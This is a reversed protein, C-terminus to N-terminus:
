QSSQIQRVLDLQINTLNKPVSLKIEVILNGRHPQNLEYLGQGQIRFKTGHQTGPPITLLFTRDDLGQIETEGGIIADLCNIEIQTFLDSGMPQYKSSPIQRFNVYLDGRPLTNFFNDGLGSYKISMGNSVGRPVNVEVTERTGKTTQVSVTKKQDNLSEELTFPIDVKLDKNHRPQRPQERTAFGFGFQSFIDNIDMHAGHVNNGFDQFNFRSRGGGERDRNYQQRQQPDSLTRYAQEIEQFKAVDGGKDPHHQSALKRYARKIEDQTASNTVGLTEYYNKM